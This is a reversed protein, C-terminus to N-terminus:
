TNFMILLQQAPKIMAITTSVTEIATTLLKNIIIIPIASKTITLAIAM